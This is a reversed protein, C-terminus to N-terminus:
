KDEQSPDVDTDPNPYIIMTSEVGKTPFPPDVGFRYEGPPLSSIDEVNDLKKGNVYVEAGLPVELSKGFQLEIVEGLDILPREVPTNNVIYYSKDPWEGSLVEQSEDVPPEFNTYVVQIIRGTQKDYVTYPKM